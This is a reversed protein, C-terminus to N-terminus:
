IVEWALLNTHINIFKPNFNLFGTIAPM